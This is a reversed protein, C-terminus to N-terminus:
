CWGVVWLGWWSGVWFGASGVVSWVRFRYALCRAKASVVFWGGLIEGSAGSGALLGARTTGEPGL